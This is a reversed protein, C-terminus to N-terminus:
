IEMKKGNLGYEHHLNEMRIENSYSGNREM